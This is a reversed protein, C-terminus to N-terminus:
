EVAAVALLAMGPQLDRATVSGPSLRTGTWEESRGGQEAVDVIPLSPVLSATPPHPSRTQKAARESVVDASAARKRLAPVAARRAAEQEDGASTTTPGRRVVFTVVVEQSEQEDSFVMDDVDTPDDLVLESEVDSRREGARM